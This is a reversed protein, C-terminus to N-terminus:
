IKRTKDNLKEANITLGLDRLYKSYSEYSTHGTLSMIDADSVGDSKLHIIRTHKIGYLSFDAGLGLKDKYPKFLSAMYNTPHIKKGGFIYYDLPQCKRNQLLQLVEDGLPIYRDTNTKSIRAPVFLLKRDWLISDNQLLRAESKPRLTTFYIFQLFEWLYPNRKLLLEKLDEIVKDTYYKHRSITIPLTEIVVPSKVIIDEKVFWNFVAKIYTQYNNTTFNRWGKERRMVSFFLKIDEKTFSGIPEYIRNDKLFHEKLFNVLTQYSRISNQRLGKDKSYEIFKDLGTNLSWVPQDPKTFYPQEHTFPNWGSQLRDRVAKLLIEAYENTKYRNIDEFVRFRQWEKNNYQALLEEPVRYWYEIYWRSATKKLKPPKYHAYAKPMLTASNDKLFRFPKFILGKKEQTAFPPNQKPSLKM